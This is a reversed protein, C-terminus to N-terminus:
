KDHYNNNLTYNQKQIIYFQNTKCVEEAPKGPAKKNLWITLLIKLMM